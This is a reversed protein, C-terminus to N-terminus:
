VDLLNRYEEVMQIIYEPYVVKIVQKNLNIQSEVDYYSVALGGGPDSQFKIGDKLWYKTTQWVADGYKKKCYAILERDSMYWDYFPDYIENIYLIAWHLKSDGYFDHAVNEPTENESLQYYFWFNENDLLKKVINVRVTIDVVNRNLYIMKPTIDLFM